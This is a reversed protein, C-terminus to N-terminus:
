RPSLWERRGGARGAGRARLVVSGRVAAVCGAFVVAAVVGDAVVVELNTSFDRSSAFGVSAAVAAATAAPLTRALVRVTTRATGDLRWALVAGVSIVAGAYAFVAGLGYLLLLLWAPLDLTQQYGTDGVRVEGAGLISGVAESSLGYAVFLAFGVGPIAGLLAASTTLALRLRARVVGRETAWAVAFAPPDHGVVALPSEGEAAAAAIDVEIESAMEDAIARPVGLRRWTKRCERVVNSM